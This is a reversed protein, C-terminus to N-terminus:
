TDVGALVLLTANLNFLAHAVITTGINGTKEYALSFVIALAVLPVFSGIDLHLVAFLLAPVLLAIWRPVHTRMYRFLGARFLLEESIPAVLIAVLVLTVRFAVSDTHRLLEISEQPSPTVHCLKLLGQWLLSVLTIVPLTILFTVLGSRLANPFAFTLRPQRWGFSFRYGAMGLLMGGHLATTGLILQHPVTLPHSKFYLALAYQGILGGLFVLWVFLFFDSISVDWAPLAAPRARAAPTLGWRWLLVAGALLLLLELPLAYSAALTPM